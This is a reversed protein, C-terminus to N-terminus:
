NIEVPRYTLTADLIKEDFAVGCNEMYLSAMTEVARRGVVEPDEWHLLNYTNKAKEAEAANLGQKIQIRLKTTDFFHDVDDIYPHVIKFQYKEYSTGKIAVIDKDGKYTQNCIKCSYALNQPTFLFEPYDAKHVIHEVDGNGWVRCGCYVCRSDQKKKLSERIAKRLRTENKKWHEVKLVGFSKIIENQKETLVLVDNLNLM